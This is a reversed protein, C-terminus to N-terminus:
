LRKAFNMRGYVDAVRMLAWLPHVHTPYLIFQVKLRWNQDYINFKLSILRQKTRNTNKETKNKVQIIKVSMINHIVGNKYFFSVLLNVRSSFKPHPPHVSLRPSNRDKINNCPTFRPYQVESCSWCLNLAYTYASWFLLVHHERKYPAEKSCCM